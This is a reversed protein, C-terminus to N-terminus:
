APWGARGSPTSPDPKARLERLVAPPILIEEAGQRLLDLRDLHALYILPSTNVVWRSM